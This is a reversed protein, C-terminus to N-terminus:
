ERRERLRPPFRWWMAVVLAAFLTYGSLFVWAPADYYLLRGLWYEVFSGIYTPVGARARLWMELTTLPCVAGCWAEAAIVAITALHAIRFAPANVWRWRRANGVVIAALGGLVFTMIGVHAILVGNALSAFSTEAPM